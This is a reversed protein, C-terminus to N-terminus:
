RRVRRVTSASSPRWTVLRGGSTRYTTSVTHNASSLRRRSYGALARPRRSSWLAELLRAYDTETKPFDHVGVLRYFVQRATLPLQAEYETLVSLVQDLLARTKAQPTWPAMGRVRTYVYSRGTVRGQTLM